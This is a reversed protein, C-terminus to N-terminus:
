FTYSFGVIGHADFFSATMNFMGAPKCIVRGSVRWHPAPDYRGALSFIPNYMREIQYDDINAIRASINWNCDIPRAYVELAYIFYFTEAIMENNNRDAKRRMEDMM